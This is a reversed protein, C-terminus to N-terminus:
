ALALTFNLDTSPSRLLPASETGTQFVISGVGPLLGLWNSFLVFIFITAVLPLYNESKRRDGLVQEMLDLLAELGAEAVNQIGGPVLALKRRMMLGVVIFLLLLLGSVLISNTISFGAIHFLEEPHLSIHLM